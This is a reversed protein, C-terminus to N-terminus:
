PSVAELEAEPFESTLENGEALHLKVAYLRRGAVGIPGRDGVIEGVVGRFIHRFRVRDGVRFRGPTQKPNQTLPNM